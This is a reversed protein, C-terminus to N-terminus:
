QFSLTLELCAGEKGMYTVNARVDYDGAPIVSADIDFETKPLSYSNQFCFSM